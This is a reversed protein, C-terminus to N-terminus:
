SDHYVRVDELEIGDLCDLSVDYYYDEPAKVFQMYRDVEGGDLEDASPSVVPVYSIVLSGAYKIFEDASSDNHNSDQEDLVVPLLLDYYSNFLDYAKVIQIHDGSTVENALGDYLINLLVDRFKNAFRVVNYKDVLKDFEEKSMAQIEACSNFGLDELMDKIAHEPCVHELQADSLLGYINRELVYYKFSSLGSLAKASLVNRCLPLAFTLDKKKSKDRLYANAEAINSSDVPTNYAGVIFSERSFLVRAEDGILSMVKMVILRHELLHLRSGIEPIQHLARLMNRQPERQVQTPSVMWLALRDFDLKDLLDCVSDVTVRPLMQLVSSVIKNSDDIATELDIGSLENPRGHVIDFLEQLSQLSMTDLVGKDSIESTSIDGARREAYGPYVSMIRSAVLSDISAVKAVYFFERAVVEEASELEEEYDLACMECLWRVAKCYSEIDIVKANTATFVFDSLNLGSDVDTETTIGSKESYEGKNCVEERITGSTDTYRLIVADTECDRVIVGDYAMINMADKVCCIRGSESNDGSVIAYVTKDGVEVTVPVIKSFDDDFEGKYNLLIQILSAGESRMADGVIASSETDDTALVQNEALWTITPVFKYCMNGLVKTRGGRTFDQLPRVLTPPPCVAYGNRADVLVRPICRAGSKDGVVSCLVTDSKVEYTKDGVAYSLKFGDLEKTVQGYYVPRVLAVNDLYALFFGLIGDLYLFVRETWGKVASMCNGVAIFIAAAISGDAVMDTMFKLLAGYSAGVGIKCGRLVGPYIVENDLEYLLIQRVIEGTKLEIIEDASLHLIEAVDQSSLYYGIARYADSVTLVTIGESTMYDHFIDGLTSADIPQTSAMSAADEFLTSILEFSITNVEFVRLSTVLNNYDLLATIDGNEVNQVTIAAIARIRECYRKFGACYEPKMLQPSWRTASFLESISIDALEDITKGSYAPDTAIDKTQKCFIAFVDEPMFDFDSYPILFSELGTSRKRGKFLTIADRVSSAYPSMTDVISESTKLIIADSLLGDSDDIEIDTADDLLLLDDDDFSLDLDKSDIGFTGQITEPIIVEPSDDPDALDLFIEDSM